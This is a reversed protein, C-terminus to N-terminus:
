DRDRDDYRSVESRFHCLFKVNKNRNPSFTRQEVTLLQSLSDDRIEERCKKEAAVRMKEFDKSYPVSVEYTWDDTSEPDQLMPMPASPVSQPASRSPASYGSGGSPLAPVPVTLESQECGAALFAIAIALAIPKTAINNM